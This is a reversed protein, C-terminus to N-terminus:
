WAHAGGPRFVNISCAGLSDALRHLERRGLVAGIFGVLPDWNYLRRLPSATPGARSM